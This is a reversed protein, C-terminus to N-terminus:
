GGTLGTHLLKIALATLVLRYILTFRDDSLKTLLKKGLFTGLIVACALPPLLEWQQLAGTPFSAFAIIKVLHTGGQCLAKTGILEEKKFSGRLFFPALVPGVAGIVVGLLGCNVCRAMTWVSCDTSEDELPHERGM